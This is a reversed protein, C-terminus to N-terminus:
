EFGNRRVVSVCHRNHGAAFRLAKKTRSPFIDHPKSGHEVAAAYNAHAILRVSSSGVVASISRSLNSTKRHVRAKAERVAAMGLMRLLPRDVAELRKFRAQLAEYGQLTVSQNM